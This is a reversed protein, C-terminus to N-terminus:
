TGPRPFRVLRSLNEILRPVFPLFQLSYAPAWALSLLRRPIKSFPCWTIDLRNSIISSFILVMVNVWILIRIIGVIPYMLYYPRDLTSIRTNIIIQIMLNSFMSKPISAASKYHSALAIPDSFSLIDSKSLEEIKNLSAFPMGPMRDMSWLSYFCSPSFQCSLYEFKLFIYSDM